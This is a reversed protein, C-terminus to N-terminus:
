RPALRAVEDRVIAGLDTADVETLPTEGTALLLLDHVLQEMRDADELLDTTLTAWDAGEPHARAVELQTRFATLPSQLEHSADAVFDRQREQSRELRALMANMM